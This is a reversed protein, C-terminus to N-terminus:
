SQYFHCSLYIQFHNHLDNKDKDLGFTSPIIYNTNEGGCTLEGWLSGLGDKGPEGRLETRQLRQENEAEHDLWINSLMLIQTM